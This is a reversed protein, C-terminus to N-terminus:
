RTAVSKHGNARLWETKWEELAVPLTSPDSITEFTHMIQDGLRQIKAICHALKRSTLTNYTGSSPHMTNEDGNDGDGNDWIEATNSNPHRIGRSIVVLFGVRLLAPSGAAGNAMAYLLKSGAACWVHQKHHLSCLQIRGALRNVIALCVLELHQDPLRLLRSIDQFLEPGDPNASVPSSPLGSSSRTQPILSGEAEFTGSSFTGLVAIEHISKDNTNQYYVRTDGTHNQVASASSATSILRIEPASVTAPTSM